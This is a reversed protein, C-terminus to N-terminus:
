PRLLHIQDAPALYPRKEQIPQLYPAVTSSTKLQDMVHQAYLNGAKLIDEKRHYQAWKLIFKAWNIRYEYDNEM